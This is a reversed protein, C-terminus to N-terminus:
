VQAYTTPRLLVAPPWNSKQETLDFYQGWVTSERRFSHLSAHHDRFGHTSKVSSLTSKHYSLRYAWLLSLTYGWRKNWTCSEHSCLKLGCAPDFASVTRTGWLVSNLVWSVPFSVPFWVRKDFSAIHSIIHLTFPSYETCCKLQQSPFFNKMRNTLTVM